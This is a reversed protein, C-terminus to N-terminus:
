YSRSLSDLIRSLRAAGGPGLHDADFFDGAGFREDKLLNYYRAQPYHGTLDQAANITHSLQVPDLRSTYSWYAPSTFVLVKIKKAAAFDLIAKLDALNRNFYLDSPITHRTAALKGTLELDREHLTRDARGFGSTNCTIEPIGRFYYAYIRGLNKRLSNEMIEFYFHDRAGPAISYYLSYNKKRWKEPSNDLSGYLSPYSVPIVLLRLSDWRYKELIMRDYFLTQSIHAANFGKGPFFSPDVGFFVHSSGLFLNKVTRSNKELFQEKYSYDNPINRLLMEMGALLFALPLISICIKKIFRAM